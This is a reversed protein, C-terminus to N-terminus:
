VAASAQFSDNLEVEKRNSESYIVFNIPQNLKGIKKRTNPLSM